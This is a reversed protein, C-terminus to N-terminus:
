ASVGRVETYAVTAREGYLKRAKREAANHSGAKILVPKGTLPNIVEEGHSDYVIYVKM